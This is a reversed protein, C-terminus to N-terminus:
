YQISAFDAKYNVSKIVQPMKDLYKFDNRVLLCISDKLPYGQETIKTGNIKLPKYKDSSLYQSVYAFGLLSDDKLIYDFADEGTVKYVLKSAKMYNNVYNSAANTGVIALDQLKQEKFKTLDQMNLDILENKRSVFPIVYDESIEYVTYNKMEFNSLNSKYKLKFLNNEDVSTIQTDINLYKHIDEQFSYGINIITSSVYLSYEQQTQAKFKSYYLNYGISLILIILTGIYIKKYKKM